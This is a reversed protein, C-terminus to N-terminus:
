SKGGPMKRRWVEYVTHLSRGQKQFAEEAKNFLGVILIWDAKTVNFTRLASVIEQKKWLPQELDYAILAALMRDTLGKEGISVNEQEQHYIGWYAIAAELYAALDPSPSKIFASQLQILGHIVQNAQATGEPPLVGAEEFTALLTMITGVMSASARESALWVSPPNLAHTQANFQQPSYETYWGRANGLSPALMLYSVLVLLFAGRWIKWGLEQVCCFMLIEKRTTGM